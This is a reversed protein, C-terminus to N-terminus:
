LEFIIMIWHSLAQAQSSHVFLAPDLHAFSILVFGLLGAATIAALIPELM